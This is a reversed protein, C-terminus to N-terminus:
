QQLSPELTLALYNLIVQGRRTFTVHTQQQLGRLYSGLFRAERQTDGAEEAREASRLWHCLHREGRFSTVFLQEARSGTAFHQTLGCLGDYSFLQATPDDMQVAPLDVGRGGFDENLVGLQMEQKVFALFSGGLPSTPDRDFNLVENLTVLQDGDANLRAFADAVANDSGVAGRAEAVAGKDFSLLLAVNEAGKELLRAFMLSRAKDAGPTPRFIVDGAPSVTGTESGTIGPIPEGEGTWKTGTRDVISFFRYGDKEGKALLPDIDCLDPHEECFQAAQQLTTPYTRNAAHFAGAAVALQRLNNSCSARNAAERVKQVAPLLLAILIAIIAIVVLLEILTFGECGRASRSASATQHRATQKL